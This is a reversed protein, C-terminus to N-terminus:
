LIGVIVSDSLSHSGASPTSLMGNKAETIDRDACVCFVLDGVSVESPVIVAISEKIINLSVDTVYEGKKETTLTVNKVYDVTGTQIKYKASELIPVDSVVASKKATQGYQKVMTLPQVTAKKNECRLVKAIYAVRLSLLKDDIMNDFFKLSGM